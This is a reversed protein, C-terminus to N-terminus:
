FLSDQVSDVHVAEAVAAYAPGHANPDPCLFQLAEGKRRVALRGPINADWRQAITLILSSTAECLGSKDAAKLAGRCQTCVGLHRRLELLRVCIFTHRNINYRAM